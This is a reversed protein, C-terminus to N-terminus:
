LTGLLLCEYALQNRGSSIISDMSDNFDNLTIKEDSLIFLYEKFKDEVDKMPNSALTAKIQKVMEDIHKWHYYINKQKEFYEQKEKLLDAYEESSREPLDKEKNSVETKCKDVNDEYSKVKHNLENEYDGIDQIREFEEPINELSEIEEKYRNIEDQENKLKESLADKTGYKEKYQEILGVQKGKQKRIEM